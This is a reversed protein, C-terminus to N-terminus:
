VKLMSLIEKRTLIRYQWSRLQFFLVQVVAQASLRYNNCNYARSDTGGGGGIGSVVGRGGPFFKRSAGHNEGWEGGGGERRIWLFIAAFQRSFQASSAATRIDWIKVCKGTSLSQRDRICIGFSAAMFASMKAAHTQMLTSYLSKLVTIRVSAHFLLTLHKKKSM